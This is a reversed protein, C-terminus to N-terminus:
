SFRAKLFKAFADARHSKAHKEEPDIEAFTKKDGLAQFIPDYGFGKDGHPPWIIEGEVKGEYVETDGNPFALCLACIFRATKPGGKRRMEENVRWMAMHFDRGGGEVAPIAAWRAAYIGPDGNLADVALGSDDSLAPLGSAKAAALAKLRANGAFTEETEEPEPLNLEAASITKVGLPTMLARIERVKGENHSAVVIKELKEM